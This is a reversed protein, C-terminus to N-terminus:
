KYIEKRHGVKHVTVIKDNHNIEYIVRWDGAKLKFLGTYKGHLPLLPINEINRVLWKLKDLVRQGVEKDLLSLTTRSNDSFDLKYM